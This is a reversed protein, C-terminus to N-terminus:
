GAYFGGEMVYLIADSDVLATGLTSNTATRVTTVM